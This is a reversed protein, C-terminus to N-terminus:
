FVVQRCGTHGHLWDSVRSHCGFCRCNGVARITWTVGIQWGPTLSLGVWIAFAWGAPTVLSRYMSDRPVGAVEGGGDDKGAGDKGAKAARAAARKAEEAM